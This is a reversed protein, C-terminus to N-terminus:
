GVQNIINYDTQNKISSLMSNKFYAALDKPLGNWYLGSYNDQVYKILETFFKVPYEEEINKREHFNIYDPHVNVLVMGGNEAIWDIKRKWIDINNQRMIVFLTFDQPITYPMEVYGTEPSGNAVWFPFITKVGDSQPEFPDTDFTSLDYEIDLDHLWELKHHMAPSRFGVSRWNKLFQNILTARKNFTERSEYLRGDHYLGHVGIEFGNEELAKRIFRSEGYRFPVFYYGSRIGFEMEINMLTYCKEQGREWEVDHTVVFAFKKGEPWGCWNIPINKTQFDIPWAAKHSYYKYRVLQRRLFLQLPRPIIPKLKYFIRCGRM